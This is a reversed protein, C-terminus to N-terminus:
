HSVVGLQMVEVSQRQAQLSNGPTRAPSQKSPSVLELMEFASRPKTEIGM